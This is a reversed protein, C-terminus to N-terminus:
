QSQAPESTPEVVLMLTRGNLYATPGIAPRLHRFLLERRDTPAVAYQSTTSLLGLYDDVSMTHDWEYTRSEALVVSPETAIEGEAWSTTSRHDDLDSTFEGGSDAYVARVSEVDHRTGDLRWGNWFLFAVGSAGLVSALRPWRTGPSTWHFSQAAVVVDFDATSDVDEFTAQHVTVRDSLHETQLRQSLVRLMDASPEVVDILAGRRALPLTARGTGAGIELIRGAARSAARLYLDDFLREPFEPRLREYDAAGRAFSAARAAMEDSSM